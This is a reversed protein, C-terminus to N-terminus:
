HIKFVENAGLSLLMGHMANDLPVYAVKHNKILM